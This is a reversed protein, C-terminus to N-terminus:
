WAHPIILITNLIVKVTEVQTHRIRIVNAQQKRFFKLHHSGQKDNYFHHLNVVRMEQGFILRWPTHSQSFNWCWKWEVLTRTLRPISSATGGLRPKRFAVPVLKATRRNNNSSINVTATTEDTDDDDDDDDSCMDNSSGDLASSTKMDLLNNVDITSCSDGEGAAFTANSM